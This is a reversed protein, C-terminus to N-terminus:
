ITRIENKGSWLLWAQLALTHLQGVAVVALFGVMVQELAVAAM